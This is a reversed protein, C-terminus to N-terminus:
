NAGAIEAKRAARMADLTGQILQRDEYQAHELDVRGDIFDVLGRALDLLTRTPEQEVRRNKSISHRLTGNM